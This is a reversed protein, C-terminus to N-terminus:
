PSGADGGTGRDALDKWCGPVEDRLPVGCSERFYAEPGRAITPLTLIAGEGARLTLMGVPADTDFWLTADVTSLELRLSADPKLRWDTPYLTFNLSVPTGPTLPEPTALDQAYLLNYAGQSVLRDAEWLRVIVRGVPRDSSLTLELQPSGAILLEERFPDSTFVAKGAGNGFVMRGAAM